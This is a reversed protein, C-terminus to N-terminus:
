VVSHGSVRTPRATLAQVETAPLTQPLHTLQFHVNLVALYLLLATAQHLLALAVAVHFWVVSVGLTIQLCVLLLALRVAPMASQRDARRRVAGWVAIIALLVGFAFWRHVFHVTPMTEILNRWWPQVVSLLGPPVLYGFMRPWTDSVHGAKLGAVLGGYAIQVVLAAIMLRSLWIPWGTLVSTPQSPARRLTLTMWFALGLLLLALVLHLTLRFHSVAPRDVLGSSVMYWGMFGQVGFLIIMLWYRGSQRWTLVGRWLFVLLPITVILGALRAVLRHIFEVYFIQKYEALTMSSNVKQFEPTQQYKAFEAQWDEQGIPPIVGSIVNWEVISLGSRTLRVYGGFVVMFVILGCVLTLWGALSRRASETM